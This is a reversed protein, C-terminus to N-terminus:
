KSCRGADNVISTYYSYPPEVFSLNTTTELFCNASSTFRLGASRRRPLGCGHATQIPGVVEAVPPAASRSASSRCKGTSYPVTVRTDRRLVLDAMGVGQAKFAVYAPDVHAVQTMMELRGLGIEDHLIDMCLVVVM